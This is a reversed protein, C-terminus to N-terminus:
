KAYELLATAARLRLESDDSRLMDRLVGIAEQVTEEDVQVSLREAAYANSHDASRVTDAGNSANETAHALGPVIGGPSQAAFLELGALDVPLPFCAIPEGEAGITRSVFDRLLPNLASEPLVGLWTVGRRHCTAEEPSDYDDRYYYDGLDGLWVNGHTLIVIYDGDDMGHLFADVDAAAHRLGTGEYGYVENLRKSVEAQDAHELNGIGPYGMSVFCDRLFDEMRSREQVFPSIRFLKM